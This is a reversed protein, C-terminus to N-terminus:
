PGSIVNNTDCCKHNFQKINKHLITHNVKLISATWRWALALCPEIPSLINICELYHVLWLWDAVIIARELGQDVIKMWKYPSATHPMIVSSKVMEQGLTIQPPDEVPIVLCLSPQLTLWFHHHPHFLYKFLLLPVKDQLLNTYLPAWFLESM